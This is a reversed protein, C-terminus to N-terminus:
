VSNGPYGDMILGHICCDLDRSFQYADVLEGTRWNIQLVMAPSAGVFVMDGLLHLGRVFLPESRALRPLGHRGLYQRLRRTRMHWWLKRRVWRYQMLSIEKVQRGTAMDYIRVYHRRTDNVFVTGDDHISVNHGLRVNPDTLVVDGTSLNVVSGFSNLLAFVRGRWTAIANLHVHSKHSFELFRTRNDLTKDIALPQLNFTAQFNPIECPWFQNVVQGTALDVELAVDVSTSTVWLRGNGPYHVEHLGAFLNHSIERKLELNRSFVHLTHYSVAVVDDGVVAVGRGGRANGRPNPDKIGMPRPPMPQRALIRKTRWDVAVIEGGKEVPAGRVVTTFFAKM